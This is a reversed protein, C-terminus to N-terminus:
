PRSGNASRDPALGDQWELEIGPQSRANSWDALFREVEQRLLLSTMHRVERSGILVAITLRAPAPKRPFIGLLRGREPQQEAGQQLVGELAPKLLAFVEDRAHAGAGQSLTGRWSGLPTLVLVDQEEQEPLFFLLVDVGSLIDSLTAEDPMGPAADEDDADEERIEEDEETPEVPEQPDAEGRAGDDAESVELPEQRAAEEAAQVSDFHRRLAKELAEETLPLLGPYQEVLQPDEGRSWRERFDERWKERLVDLTVGDAVDQALEERRDQEIATVRALQERQAAFALAVGAQVADVVRTDTEEIWKEREAGDAVALGLLELTLLAQERNGISHEPIQEWLRQVTKGELPHLGAVASRVAESQEGAVQDRIGGLLSEVRERVRATWAAQVSAEALRKRMRDADGQVGASALYRDAMEDWDVVRFQEVLRQLSVRPVRHVVPNARIASLMQEGSVHEGVWQVVFSLLRQEAMRESQSRADARVVSFLEYPPIDSQAWAAAVAARAQQLLFAEIQDAYVAAAPLAEIDTLQQLAGTQVRFEERIRALMGASLDRAASRTEEFLHQEATETLAAVWDQLADLDEAGLRKGEVQGQLAMLREDLDAQGPRGQNRRVEDLQRAVAQQRAAPFTQGIMREAFRRSADVLVEAGELDAREYIADKTVPLPSQSAAEDVIGNLQGVLAGHRTRALYVLSSKRSQERSVHNEPSQLMHAAMGSAWRDADRDEAEAVEQVLDLVRRAASRVVLNHRARMRADGDAARVQTVWAVQVGIMLLCAFCRM